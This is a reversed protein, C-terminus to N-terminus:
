AGVPAKRILPESLFPIAGYRGARYGRDLAEGKRASYDTLPVLVSAQDEGKETLWVQDRRLLGGELLSTDHTTFILQAGHRNVKPDQFLSVFHRVLLEHLSRELEDVILVKGKDLIDFVPGALSYLKQTGESQDEFELEMSVDGVSHTFKPRTIESQETRTEAFTGGDIRFTMQHAQQSQARISSIAIDAANLFSAIKREWAPDKIRETSYAEPIQGGAMFIILQDQFWTYLPTLQENNLQVATSLFLSNPKTAQSQLKKNGRFSPGFDYQDEGSKPDFRRDFWTQPRHGQYVILWEATIRAPAFEFGYQYRTGDLLITAELRTPESATERDLRFPQVNLTAQPTHSASTVVMARMFELAKLLNSKGSANPGYVVASLLASPMAKIDTGVTNTARLTKDASAVLSLKTEDRFSRYNKFRFELLM